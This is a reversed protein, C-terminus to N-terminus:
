FYYTDIFYEGTKNYSFFSILDVNQKHSMSYVAIKCGAVFQFVRELMRVPIQFTLPRLKFRAARDTSYM